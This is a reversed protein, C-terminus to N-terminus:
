PWAAKGEAPAVKKLKAPQEEILMWGLKERHQWKQEWVARRVTNDTLGYYTITFFVSAERSRPGASDIGALQVDTVRISQLASMRENLWANRKEMDVFRSAQGM